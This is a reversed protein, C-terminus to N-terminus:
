QLASVLREGCKRRRIEVSLGRFKVSERKLKKREAKRVNGSFAVARFRISAASPVLKDAADAGAQLQGALKSADFGGKKLELPVVWDGDTATEVVGIYDCRVANQNLPSGPKDCDVILRAQPAKSMSVACGDKKLGHKVICKPDLQSRVTAMLGMM